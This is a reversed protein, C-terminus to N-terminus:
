VCDYHNVETIHKWETVCNHSECTTQLLASQLLASKKRLDARRVICQEKVIDLETINVGMFSLIVKLDRYRTKMSEYLQSKKDDVMKMWGQLRSFEEITIKVTDNNNM